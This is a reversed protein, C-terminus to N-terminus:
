PKLLIRIVNNVRRNDFVSINGALIVTTQGQINTKEYVDVISGQFKGTNNYNAALTGDANLVMFGQRVITNYRNFTGSVLIKGNNLQTAFAPKGGDFKLSTFTPDISGDANMRVLGNTAIGNFETFTGALMYKGTTANFRISNISGGTASATFSADVLGNNDIRVIHNANINQYKTFGGVLILKGDPQMVSASVEGNGADIPTGAAYNFNYTSDMKGDLSMRMLNNVKTYGVNKRDRTSREYFFEAYNNFRGQLILQNNFLYVKSIAGSVGGNFKSVTDYSNQPQLPTINVLEVITTDISGNSNLRVLSNLGKRKNFANFSGGVMFQGSPLQLISTLAGNAGDKSALTNIYAGNSSTMVIRNIPQKTSAFSAYDTFSGVMLLNGSSLPLVQNVISNAGNANFSGDISTKGSIQVAPGFFIQGDVIINTGGSSVNDPLKITVENDTVNLINAEVENVFFQAKDKYPILGTVKFILNDAETRPASLGFKIGLATKGGAYPDIPIEDAKHCAVFGTGMAM